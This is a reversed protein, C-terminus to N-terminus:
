TARKWLHAYYDTIFRAKEPVTRENRNTVWYSIFGARNTDQFMGADYAEVINEDTWLDFEDSRFQEYSPMEDEMFSQVRRVDLAGPDWHTDVGRGFHQHGCVGSFEDWEQQTMRVPSTSSAAGSGAGLWVSRFTPELGLNDVFWSILNAVGEYWADNYGPVEAAKGWMEVQYTYKDDEDTNDRLSYAARDFPVHQRLQKTWPDYTLHPCAWTGDPNPWRTYELTHLVLKTKGNGGSWPKGPHDPVPDLVADPHWLIM